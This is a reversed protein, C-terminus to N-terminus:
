SKLDPFWGVRDSATCPDPRSHCGYGHSHPNAHDDGRRTVSTGLSRALGRELTGIMSPSSVAGLLAFRFIAQLRWVSVPQNHGADRLPPSDLVESAGDEILLALILLSLLWSRAMAPNRALLRDIGWGARKVAQVRAGSALPASVRGPRGFGYGYRNALVDAGDPVSGVRADDATFGYRVAEQQAPTQPLSPGIVQGMTGDSSSSGRQFCVGRGM